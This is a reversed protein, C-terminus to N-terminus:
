YETLTVPCTDSAAIFNILNNTSISFAQGPAVVFTGASGIAATGGFEHFGLNVSGVNQGVLEKRDANAAVSLGGSTTTATGSRDTGDPLPPLDTIFEESSNEVKLGGGAGLAAPLRALVSTQNAATSAGSPLGVTLTGAIADAIAKLRGLLTNSTPTAQVEGLGDTGNATILFVKPAQVGGGIDKTAATITIDSANKVSTNDAM